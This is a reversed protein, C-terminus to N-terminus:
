GGLVESMNIQEIGKSWAHVEAYFDVAMLLVTLAAVRVLMPHEEAWKVM